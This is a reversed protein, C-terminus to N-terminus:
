MGQGSLALVNDIGIETLSGDNLCELLSRGRLISRPMLWWNAAGFPDDAPLIRENAYVVLPKVRRQETDFQFSPYFYDPRSGSPLGIIKSKKRLDGAIARNRSGTASLAEGVESSSWTDLTAFISAHAKKRAADRQAAPDKRASDILQVALDLRADPPLAQEVAKALAATPEAKGRLAETFTDTFTKMLATAQATTM